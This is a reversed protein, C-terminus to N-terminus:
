SESSIEKTGSKADCCREINKLEKGHENINIQYFIHELELSINVNNIICPDLCGGEPCVAACKLETPAFNLFGKVHAERLRKFMPLAESEPVAIIAVKIKNEEIYSELKDLPLIPIDADSKISEPDKDFGASISIEEKNIGEYQILASGIRGCGVIIAKHTSDKGLIKDFHEILQDINYGGRKNGPINMLSFDKRVLSSTVGIPDGLNNSFIKEFGMSKLRYLVRKYKTLRLIQHRNM